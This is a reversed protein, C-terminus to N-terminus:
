VRGQWRTRSYLGDIAMGMRVRVPRLNEVCVRELGLERKLMTVAMMAVAADVMDKAMREAVATRKERDLVARVNARNAHFQKM